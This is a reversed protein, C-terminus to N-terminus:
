DSPTQMLIQSATCHMSLLALILPSDRCYIAMVAVRQVLQSRQNNSWSYSSDRILLVHTRHFHNHYLQSSIPSDSPDKPEGPLSAPDIPSYCVLESLHQFKSPYYKLLIRATVSGWRIYLHFANGAVAFIICIINNMIVESDHKSVDEEFKLKNSYRISSGLSINLSQFIFVPINFWYCSQTISHYWKIITDIDYVIAGM